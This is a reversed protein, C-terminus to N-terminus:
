LVHLERQRSSSKKERRDRHRIREQLQVSVFFIKTKNIYIGCYYLLFRKKKKMKTEHRCLTFQPTPCYVSEIITYQVEFSDFCSSVKSKAMLELNM